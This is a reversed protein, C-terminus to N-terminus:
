KKKSFKLKQGVNRNIVGNKPRLKEVSVIGGGTYLSLVTNFIKTEFIQIKQGFCPNKALIEILFKTTFSVYKWSQRDGDPPSLKSRMWREWVLSAYPSLVSTLQDDNNSFRNIFDIWTDTTYDLGQQYEESNRSHEIMSCTWQSLSKV